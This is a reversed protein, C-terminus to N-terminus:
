AQSTNLVTIRITDPGGGKDSPANSSIYWRADKLCPIYTLNSTDTNNWSNVICVDGPEVGIGTDISKVTGPEQWAGTSMNKQERIVLSRSNLSCIKAQLFGWSYAPAKQLGNDTEKCM